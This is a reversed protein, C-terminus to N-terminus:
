GTPTTREEGRGPANGPVAELTFSFVSGQGPESRVSLDSGHVRVIRRSLYLGLGAGPVKRGERDRGRGFKEFVRRADDPHIGPGSDAIELRVTRRASAPGASPIARLTVPTGEPTYKAANSLLNRLVQGIRYPDAVVEEDPNEAEVTFPRTGPLTEAFAFADDLLRGVAVTRIRLSFDEREVSAAFRVDAVLAMLIDTETAIKELAREQEEPGLEGTGLVEAHARVAALPSGLEHAVMAGFDARLVALEELRRNAERLSEEARRRETVDRIATVRVARGRYTSPRGNIEIRIRTGDKRYAVAEYIEETGSAVKARVTEVSEPAAFDLVSRGLMESLEYGFIRAYARNAELIVGGETILIGELAAETLARFRQESERLEEEALKRETVDLMIGHWYRPRGREDEILVAADRVWAVRGDRHVLRYETSYPEGTEDTRRDEFVVRELDEPHVVGYWLAPDTYFDEPRYGSMEQIQPSVFIVDDNHEVEQVYTVAPTQEILTRYREDAERLAEEAHKRGTVDRCNLVIAGTSPDDLLNTGTVEIDRWSGDRHRHRVEIQLPVRPRGFSRAFMARAKGVDDPHLLDFVKHGVSEEPDYGLVRQLAPSAYRVTGDAAVLTIIDSSGQVMRRFRQESERLAEEARKRDTIDRSVGFVGTIRGTSDRYPGKAALYTRTVGERTTKADEITRAEGSAVIEQDDAVIERWDGASFLEADTRGLVEEVTRGLAGVGAGNIATYRGELDKVFVADTTGEMVSRLLNNSERLADEALKRETIDSSVGIVGVLNGREDLIPTDTVMAPFLTGDRRKVTFEGSWSRGVSLDSWIEGALGLQEESVMVERALRGVAEGASWGYLEEAARNWYVVRGTLDLAVVAQGVADLLRAQVRIKEEARERETVDSIVGIHHTAHGKEDRVAAASLEIYFPTGDKKYNRLVGMWEMDDNHVKRAGRLDDLASQDGDGAQLFRPNRGLVEESRYGTIKEFARNVYIIPDDLAAADTIMVGNQTANLARKLLSLGDEAREGIM